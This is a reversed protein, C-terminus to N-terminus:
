HPYDCHGAYRKQRRSGWDLLDCHDCNILVVYQLDCLRGAQQHRTVVGAKVEFPDVLPFEQLVRMQHFACRVTNLGIHLSYFHM